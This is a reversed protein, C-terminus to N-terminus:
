FYPINRKRLETVLELYTKELYDNINREFDFQWYDLLEYVNDPIDIKLKKM